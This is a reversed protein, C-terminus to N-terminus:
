FLNSRRDNKRRSFYVVDLLFTAAFLIAKHNPPCNPPFNVCFKDADLLAKGLGAWVKKIDGVRTKGEGEGYEIHFTFIDCCGSYLTYLVTTEDADFVTLKRSCFTINRRIFGLQQGTTNDFVRIQDFIFTFPREIRLFNVPNQVTTVQLTFPYKGKLFTRALFDSNAAAVVPINNTLHVDYQQDSKFSTFLALADVREQISASDATAFVLDIVGPQSQVQM